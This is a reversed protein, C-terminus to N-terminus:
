LSASNQSSDEPCRATHSYTPRLIYGCDHIGYDCNITCYGQFLSNSSRWRKLRSVNFFKNYERWFGKYRGFKLTSIKRRRICFDPTEFENYQHKPLFEKYRPLNYPREVRACDPHDFQKKDFCAFM